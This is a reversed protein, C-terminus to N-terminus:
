FIAILHLLTHETNPSSLPLLSCVTFQACIICSVCRFTSKQPSSKFCTSVCGATTASLFCLVPICTIQPVYDAAIGQLLHLHFSPWTTGHVTTQLICVACSNVARHEGFTCCLSQTQTAASLSLQWPYHSCYKSLQQISQHTDSIRLVSCRSETGNQVLFYKASM